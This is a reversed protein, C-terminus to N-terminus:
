VARRTTADVVADVAMDRMRMTIIITMVVATVTAMIISRMSTAIVSMSTAIVSMSTAIVSMSTAIVSMSTAIVSMSTVIVSMSTVIVSMSTYNFISFQSNGTPKLLVSIKLIQAFRHAVKCRVNTGARREGEPSISPPWFWRSAAKRTGKGAAFNCRDGHLKTAFMYYLISLFQFLLSLTM